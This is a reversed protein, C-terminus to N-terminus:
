LQAGISRMSNIRHRSPRKCRRSMSMFTAAFNMFCDRFQNSLFNFLSISITPPARSAEITAQWRILSCIDSAPAILVASRM